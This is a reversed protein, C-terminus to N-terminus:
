VELLNGNLTLQTSSLYGMAKKAQYVLNSMAKKPTNAMTEASWNNLVLSNFLFIAGTFKYKKRQEM